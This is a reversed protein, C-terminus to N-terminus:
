NHFESETKLDSSSKSIVSLNKSMKNWHQSQCFDKGFSKNTFTM